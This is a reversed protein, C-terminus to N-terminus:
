HRSLAGLRDTVRQRIGTYFSNGETRALFAKYGQKADEVQGLADSSYGKNLLVEPLTPALREAKILHRLALLHDERQQAVLALQVWVHVITADRAIAQTLSREAEDLRGLGLQATGVWYWPEWRKPYQSLLPEMTQLADAYAKRQVLVRVAEVNDDLASSESARGAKRVAIARKKKGQEVSQIPHSVIGEASSSNEVRDLSPAEIERKKDSVQPLPTELPAERALVSEPAKASLEGIVAPPDPFAANVGEQKSSATTSPAASERDTAPPSRPVVPHSMIGPISPPPAVSVTTWYAYGAWIAWAILGGGVLMFGLLKVWTRQKLVRPFENDPVPDGIVPMPETPNAQEPHVEHPRMGALRRLAEEIISM